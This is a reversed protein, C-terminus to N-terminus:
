VGMNFAVFATMMIVGIVFVLGSGWNRVELVVSWFGGPRDECREGSDTQQIAKELALRSVHHSFLVLTLSVAWCMWAAVLLWPHLTPGRAIVKDLFAFSVGLAGGSLALVTKDYEGQSKQAADRLHLRHDSLGEDM